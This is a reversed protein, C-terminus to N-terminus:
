RACGLFRRVPWPPARAKLVLDSDLKRGVRYTKSCELPLAQVDSKLYGWTSM